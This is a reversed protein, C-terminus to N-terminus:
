AAFGEAGVPRVDQAILGAYTVPKVLLFDCDLADLMKGTVTGVLATLTQRHTLAGLVVVDMARGAAFVPLMRIPDGVCIYQPASQVGAENVRDILKHRQAGIEADTAGGKVCTLVEIEGQWGSRFYQATQLIAQALEPAEDSSIDVAAAIKPHRRWAKGRTLLILSPCARILGWDNENLVEQNGARDGGVNRIVLDPRSTIVKRTIGEYEPSECTADITLEVGSWDLTASLEQLYVRTEDACSQRVREVGTSDFEHKLAFARESDCMFLEVRAGFVRAIAIAKELADRSNTSRNVAVLIKQIDKMAGEPGFTQQHRRANKCPCRTVVTRNDYIGGAGGM